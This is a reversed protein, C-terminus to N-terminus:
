LTAIQHLLVKYFKQIDLLKLNAYNLNRYVADTNYKSSLNSDACEINTMLNYQLFPPPPQRDCAQTVDKHTNSLPIGEELCKVQM